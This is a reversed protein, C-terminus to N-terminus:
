LYRSDLSREIAYTMFANDAFSFDSAMTKVFDVVGEKDTHDDSSKTRTKCSWDCIIPYPAKTRSYFVDDGHVM